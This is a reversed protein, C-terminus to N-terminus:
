GDAMHQLVSVAADDLKLEGGDFCVYPLIHGNADTISEARLSPESISTALPYAHRYPVKYIIKKSTAGGPAQFVQVIPEVQVSAILEQLRDFALGYADDFFAHWIHIPVGTSDQWFQLDGRDEEKVIVTPIVLSKAFGLQGGLRRQPKMAAGFGPMKRSVWLSNECEIGVIALSLLERMAPENEQHFPLRSEGGLSGVIQAVRVSDRERFVLLDPRKLKGLGAAELEEFYLEFSRVDDDPATGSPGYAIARFRGGSNVASVLRTESWVGQSWRMLFDSGRLRRPNLVHDLWALLGTGALELQLDERSVSLVREFGHM